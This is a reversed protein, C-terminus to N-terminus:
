VFLLDVITNNKVILVIEQGKALRDKYRKSLENSLLESLNNYKIRINQLQIDEVIGVYSGIHNQPCVEQKVVDVIKKLTNRIAAFSSKDQIDKCEKADGTDTVGSRHVYENRVKRVKNITSSTYDPAGKVWPFFDNCLATSKHYASIDTCVTHKKNYQYPNYGNETFKVVHWQAADFTKFAKTYYYNLINELQFHTYSCFEYWKDQISLSNDLISDEMRINDMILQNRTLDDVFTYDISQAGRIKLIKKIEELDKKEPTKGNYVLARLGAAFEDNGPQKVITEIFSLLKKLEEKNQGM